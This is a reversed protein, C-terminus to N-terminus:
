FLSTLLVGVKLFFLKLFLTGTEPGCQLIFFFLVLFVTDNSPRLKASGFSSNLAM